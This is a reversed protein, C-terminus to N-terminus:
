RYLRRRRTLLLMLLVVFLTFVAVKFLDPYIRSACSIFSSDVRCAGVYLPQQASSAAGKSTVLAYEVAAQAHAAMATALLGVWTIVFKRLM